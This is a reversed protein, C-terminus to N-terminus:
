PRRTTRAHEAITVDKKVDELLAWWDLERTRALLQPKYQAAAVRAYSTWGDVAAQLHKVAQSRHEAKGTTEFLCLETAGQIKAAYYRGLYAMAEIDNLTEACEATGSEGRLHAVGALAQHARAELHNSVDVPSLGQIPRAEVVAAVYDPISVIGSAEMPPVEMFMRVDHFGNRQDLCGEPAWMFDWDRWHFRNVQPIIQSAAQWAEFLRFANADDLGFRAAILKEIRWSPVGLDYGLRGWLMFSYWHKDIELRDPKIPERSASEVGWVYGDSGMHYGATKGAPLNQLFTRVYDPDGWRFCFIDDNRLNWWCTVDYADMEELLGQAFPPRTSSYMHARAYKFGIEFSDPYKAAFDRMIKQLGTNWVGHIFRVERDPSAKKADVVGMGYTQWLWKERDYEDERNRMHEGATVGIGALDPYTLILERVSQRLYAITKPNTQEATIGYKGEAGNVVVNWTIIYVDIGRDKAHRMVKRWFAIKDEMTMTKVVRLNALVTPSVFQPERWSGSEYRPKLTTVCVDDLAVDPYDPCRIMSPFPHPNWLTLTNYRYRALDDLFARWFDFDWMHLYNAQAADGTDDYSPTRADLPINFKIGRRGISPQATHGEVADLSGTLRVIEAVDLAGYMAGRADSGVICVERGRRHVAFAEPGVLHEAAQTQASVWLSRQAWTCLLITWDRESIVSGGTTPPLPQAQVAYGAGVLAVRLEEAAFAMPPSQGDFFLRVERPETTTAAALGTLCGLVCLTWRQKM